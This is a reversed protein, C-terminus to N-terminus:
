KGGLGLRNLFEEDERTKEVPEYATGKDAMKKRRRKELEKADEFTELEPEEEVAKDVLEKNLKNESALELLADVVDAELQTGRIRKIEDLVVSLELQKRYPRTSYMADFTDAVAIIRAVEPIEDGKLGNPYGKGDMREHHCGAGVALDKVINVDCLIEAGRAAHSKMVLYEDDNLREPKNLIQDPISLKGIDHLLAINYYEAIQEPTYGKKDALKQALLRTYYAVRFSHGRNQSDRMDICKAFTRIIQDIFKQDEQQKKLLAMTRNRFYRIIFWSIGSVAFILLIVWFVLSEYVSHEKSIDLRTSNKVEGTEDDIVNLTFVYKGGDLNTYIVPKLDQKTTHIPAEDFGELCYTIRPNALGYTLAYADVVLRKTGAPVYVTDGESLNIRRDDLEVSPISLRVNENEADDSNIDVVCVGTTGSIYLNGNKDLFSRSNGTTICPLGSKTNYFSYEIGANNILEDTRTVYIGSSSLIWAGGHSNFYIDYNNSYPFTSVNTIVDDKMYQISNSTIIWFVRRESDWKIRMIVESTLGEDHGLRSVRSGNIVYIGDGDSGLYLRGDEGEEIALIEATNIGNKQGFHEIVTDDRIIFVGNGTAAAMSGDRREIVSRVRSADLGNDENFETIAGSEPNYQVLGHEGHTCLWVNGKSDNTICRIRVGDLLTTLDNFKCINSGLNLITLGSDTGLYLDEGNVCTSNVVMTDLGALKSLDSFRDPVIKLVGQRSSTFWLNGELDPMINGVSNNMPVDTLENYRGMEDFFGIGNTCAAWILGNDKFIANINRHEGTSRRRLIQLGDRTVGITLIENGTTGMYMTAPDGPDPYICCVPDEGFEDHRYFTTVKLRNMEFVAGNSTLGYVRGTSGRELSTIYEMNVQPADIVHIEMTEGDVYAMGQTTGILINGESDETIARISFSKLGEIKGYVTLDGHDLCAIGNENTGIWLRDKKDVYLSFVSSVGTTSDFREFNTGDYRILGSYGGMWIFGDSGQAIANCESTPLGNSSDYLIATYDTGDGLIDRRNGSAQASKPVFLCLLVFATIFLCVAATIRRSISNM